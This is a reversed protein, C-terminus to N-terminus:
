AKFRILGEFDTSPPFLVSFPLGAPSLVSGFDIEFISGNGTTNYLLAFQTSFSAAPWTVTGFAPYSKKGASFVPSGALLPVPLGGHAYNNVGDALENTTTYAVTDQNINDAAAAYLALNFTDGAGFTFNNKGALNDNLGQHTAAM